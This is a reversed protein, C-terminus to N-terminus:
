TKPDPLASKKGRWMNDIRVAGSLGKGTRSLHSVIMQFLLYGWRFRTLKSKCCCPILDTTCLVM